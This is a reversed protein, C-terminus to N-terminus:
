LKSSSEGARARLLELTSQIHKVMSKFYPKVKWSALAMVPIELHKAIERDTMKGEAVLVQALGRKRVRERQTLKKM